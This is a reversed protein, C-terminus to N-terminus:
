GRGNDAPGAELQALLQRVAAVPVADAAASDVLQRLAAALWAREHGPPPPEGGQRGQEDFLRPQVGAPVPRRREFEQPTAGALTAAWWTLGRDWSAGPPRHRPVRGSFAVDVVVAVVVDRVFQDADFDRRLRQLFGPTPPEGTLRRAIEAVVPRSRQLWTWAYAPVRAVRQPDTPQVAPDTM